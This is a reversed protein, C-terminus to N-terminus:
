KGEPEYRQALTLKDDDIQTVFLPRRVSRNEAFVIPGTLGDLRESRSLEERLRSTLPPHVRGLADFTMRAAEYALVAHVDPPERFREQYKRAFEKGAATLQGSLYSTALYLGSTAGPNELLAAIGTEEGGYVVPASVDERQLQARIRLCAQADGGLLLAGPQSKLLLKVAEAADADGKLTLPTLVTEAAPASAKALAAEVAQAYANGAQLVPKVSKVKLEQNLFRGLCEGVWSASVGLPFLNEGPPGSLGSSTVVPVGYQQAAKGVREAIASDMGTLLAVAGNVRILRIAERQAVDADGQTDVHLVTVPRISQAAETQNYEEVALLVAQRAREGAAREPGRLSVLQGVSVPEVSQKRGCGALGALLFTAFIALVSKQM